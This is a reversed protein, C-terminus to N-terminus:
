GGQTTRDIDEAGRTRRAAAAAGAAAALVVAGGLPWLWGPMGAEQPVAGADAAAVSSRAPRSAGSQAPDDRHHEGATPVGDSLGPPDPIRSSVWMPYDKLTQEPDVLIPNEDPWQTPSTALMNPVNVIGFGYGPQWDYGDGDPTHILHQILQNGTAKPYKSKVLALAGSTIATAPSTGTGYYESTWSSGTMEGNAVWVGPAAVAAHRNRPTVMGLRANEDVAGVPVVGPYRAPIYYDGPRTANGASAVVVIGADLARQTARHFESSLNTTFSMSIIDAGDAVAADILPASEDSYCALRHRRGGYEDGYFLVRADPAVGPVGRGGPATGSGSGVILSVMATGHDSDPLGPVFRASGNMCNHRLRVDQRRLEPVSPDVSTDIVAVTAGEGTTQRHAKRLRMARYWWLGETFSRPEPPLRYRDAVGPPVADAAGVGLVGTGVGGMGLVACLLATARM